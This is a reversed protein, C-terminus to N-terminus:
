IKNKYLFLFYMSIVVKQLSVRCFHMTFRPDKDSVISVPVGHLRVVRSYVISLIEGIHLDDARSSFTGVKHAPGSDGM